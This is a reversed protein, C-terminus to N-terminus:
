AGSGRISTWVPAKVNVAIVMLGAVVLILTLVISPAVPEQLILHGAIVGAVPNLFLFSNLITAGFKQMMTTWLLFGLSAAVVSQYFLTLAIDWTFSSVMPNDFIIGAVLYLPAAVLMPYLVLQFPRYRPLITKTYITNVSWLMTAGLCLFDGPMIGHISAHSGWVLVAIGTFGLTIGIVKRITIRDHPIFFHALIMVLFPQVNIILAARSAYTHKVGSMFLSLQVTFIAALIVVPKVKGKVSFPRGTLRAWLAIVMAAILFRLGLTTFLGLGNFTHKIAVANVGFTISLLSAGLIAWLPLSNTSPQM